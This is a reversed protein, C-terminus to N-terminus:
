QAVADLEIVFRPLPGTPLAPQRMEETLQVRKQKGKIKTETAHDFTRYAVRSWDDGYCRTLYAHAHLPACAPLHLEGFRQLPLCPNLSPLTSSSPDVPPLVSVAAVCSQNIVAGATAASSGTAPLEKEDETSRVELCEHEFFNMHGWAKQARASSFLLRPVAGAKPTRHSLSGDGQMVAAMSSRRVFFIDVSPYRWPHGAVLPSSRSFFKFGFFTPLFEFSSLVDCVGATSATSQSPALGQAAAATISAAAIATASASVSASDLRAASTASDVDGNTTPADESNNKKMRQIVEKELRGRDEEKMEVDADDDWPIIGGHRILGLLSGGSLWYPLPSSLHSGRLLFDL